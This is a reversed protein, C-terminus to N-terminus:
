PKPERRQKSVFYLEKTKSDMNWWGIVAGQRYEEIESEARALENFAPQHYAHAAMAVVTFLIVSITAVKLM